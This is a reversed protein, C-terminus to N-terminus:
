GGLLGDELAYWEATNGVTTIGNNGNADANHPRHCSDCNMRNAAPYTFLGPAGAADATSTNPCTGVAYGTLVTNTARGYPTMPYTYLAQNNTHADPYHVYASAAPVTYFPSVNNTALISASIVQSAHCGRCLSDGITSGSTHSSSVTFGSGQGDDEYKMVLLNAKFGATMDTAATPTGANLVLNHCSECILYAGNVLTAPNTPTNSGGYNAYKSYIPQNLYAAPLNSNQTNGWSNDAATTGARLYSNFTRDVDQVPHSNTLDSTLHTQTGTSVGHRAVNVLSSFTSGASGVYSPAGSAVTTPNAPDHCKECLREFTQTNAGAALGGTGATGDPNDAGVLMGGFGNHATWYSGGTSHCSGCNLLSTALVPQVSHHLNPVAASLVHCSDCWGTGASNMMAPASGVPTSPGKLLSTAAYGGHADHCSSCRPQGNSAATFSAAGRDLRPAATTWAAPIAVVSPYFPRGLNNDLPHDTLSAGGVYGGALGGTHCGTCLFSSAFNGESQNAIALLDQTGPTSDNPGHVAHCTECSVFNSTIELKGGLSYGPAATWPKNLNDNIPSKFGTAGNGAIDGVVIGTPHTSYAPSGGTNAAGVLARDRGTHCANCLTRVSSKINFPRYVNNHVNHCSTCQLDGAAAYPLGSGVVAANDLLNGNTPQPPVAQNVYGHSGAVMATGSVNHAGVGNGSAHCSWCLATIARTGWGTSPAGSVSRGWGRTAATATTNHCDACAGELNGTTASVDHPGIAALVAGPVVVAGLVGLALLIMLSRKM